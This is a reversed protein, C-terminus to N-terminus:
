RVAAARPNQAREAAKQPRAAVSFISQMPMGTTYLTAFSYTKSQTSCFETLTVPAIELKGDHAPYDTIGTARIPATGACLKAKM